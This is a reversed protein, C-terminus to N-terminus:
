FLATLGAHIKGIRLDFSSGSQKGIAYSLNFIGAKTKDAHSIKIIEELSKGALDTGSILNNLNTVYAQHHKGYHFNMTNESIHPALANKAYPLAPLEFPMTNEGLTKNHNKSLRDFAKIKCASLLLGTSLLGIKIFKRKSMQM